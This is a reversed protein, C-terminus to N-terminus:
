IVLLKLAETCAGVCKDTSETTAEVAGTTASLPNVSDCFQLVM